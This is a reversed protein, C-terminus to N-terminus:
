SQSQVGQRARVPARLRRDGRVRLKGTIRVNRFDIVTNRPLDSWVLSDLQDRLEHAQVPGVLDRSTFEIVTVEPHQDDILDYAIHAQQTAISSM